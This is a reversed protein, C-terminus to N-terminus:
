RLSPALTLTLTAQNRRVTLRASANPTQRLAAELDAPRRLPQGNCTAIVDSAQL